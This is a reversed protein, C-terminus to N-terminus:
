LHDSDSDLEFTLMGKKRKPEPAKTPAVRKKGADKKAPATQVTKSPAPTQNAVLKKSLEHVLANTKNSMIRDKKTEEARFILTTRNCISRPKRKKMKIKERRTKM